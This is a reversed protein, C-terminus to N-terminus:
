EPKLDLRMGLAEAIRVLTVLNPQYKGVEIREINPQKLGTLEALMGTSYGKEERAAKIRALFEQCRQDILEPNSM